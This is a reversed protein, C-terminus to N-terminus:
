SKGIHRGPDIFSESIKEHGPHVPDPPV